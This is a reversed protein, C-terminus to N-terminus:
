GLAAKEGGDAAVAEAHGDACDGGEEADVGGGDADGGALDGGDGAGGGGECGPGDPQAGQVVQVAVGGAVADGEGARWRCGAGWVSVNVVEACGSVVKNQLTEWSWPLAGDVHNRNRRRPQPWPVPCPLPPLPRRSPLCGRWGARVGPCGCGHGM